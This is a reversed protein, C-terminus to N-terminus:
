WKILTEFAQTMHAQLRSLLEARLIPRTSWAHYIRHRRPARGVKQHLVKRAYGRKGLVERLSHPRVITMVKRMRGRWRMTFPRHRHMEQTQWDSMEQGLEVSGFHDLKHLMDALRKDIARLDDSNVSVQLM